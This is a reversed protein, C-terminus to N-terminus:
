KWIYIRLLLYIPFGCSESSSCNQRIVWHYHAVPAQLFCQSCNVSYYDLVSTVSCQDYNNHPIHPWLLVSSTYVVIQSERCWVSIKDDSCKVFLHRSCDSWISQHMTCAKEVTYRDANAWFGRLECQSLKHNRLHKSWRRFFLVFM